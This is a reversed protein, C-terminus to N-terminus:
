RRYGSCVNGAAGPKPIMVVRVQQPQYTDGLLTEKLELWNAKLYGQLEEVTKGDVGSSGKNSKVRNYAKTMNERSVIQEMLETPLEGKIRNNGLGSTASM